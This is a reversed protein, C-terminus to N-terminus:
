PGGLGDVAADRREHQREPSQKEDQAPSEAEPEAYATRPVGTVLRLKTWILMALGGTLACTFVTYLVRRPSWQMSPRGSFSDAARHPRGFQEADILNVGSPAASTPSTPSGNEAKVHQESM